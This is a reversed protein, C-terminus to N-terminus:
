PGLAAATKLRDRDDALMLGVEAPEIMGRVARRCSRIGGELLSGAGIGALEILTRALGTPCDLV